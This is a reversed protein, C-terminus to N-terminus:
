PSIDIPTAPSSRKVLQLTRCDDNLLDGIREISVDANPYDALINPDQAYHGQRVFVTTVRSSWIKKIAALIRLKDDIMVYHDAPFRESIDDLEKKKHVYILVNGKVAEFLGSREVKRPQFVVDGDSLIVTPGWEKAREIVELSNPFLSNIFPYNILFSSVALLGLDHPYERRFLKLAGLYDTYGLRTRLEEFITWYRRARERGVEDELYKSLDVIIQDNNLLTNDVDFLFVIKATVSRKLVESEM